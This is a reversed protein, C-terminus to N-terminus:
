ARKWGSILRKIWYLTETNFQSICDTQSSSVTGQCVSVETCGLVGKPPWLWPNLQINFVSMIKNPFFTANKEATSCIEFSFHLLPVALYHNHHVVDVNARWGESENKLKWIMNSGMWSEMRTQTDRWMWIFTFQWFTSSFCSFELCVM